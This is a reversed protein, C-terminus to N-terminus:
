PKELSMYPQIKHFITIGINKRLGLAWHSLLINLMWSFLTNKYSHPISKLFLVYLSPYICLKWLTIFSETHNSLSTVLAMWIIYIFIVYFEAWDGIKSIFEWKVYKRISCINATVNYFCDLFDEHSVYSVSKIKYVDAWICIGSVKIASIKWYSLISNCCSFTM